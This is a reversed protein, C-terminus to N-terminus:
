PRKEKVKPALPEGEHRGVKREIQHHKVTVSYAKPEDHSVLDFVVCPHGAAYDVRVDVVRWLWGPDASGEWKGRYNRVRVRRKTVVVDGIKWRAAAILSDENREIRRHSRQDRTRTSM